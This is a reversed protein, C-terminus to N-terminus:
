IHCDVVTLLTDDPLSDILENFKRNWDDTGVENRSMGFWGMEGRAAWQSDKVLAYTVTSSDRAQQIYQDRPSLYEDVGDWPDGLAKCAAVKASQAHYVNRATDIDGKHAERVSEWSTWLMGGTAQEVKDWREAAQVGAKNRMGEFDIDGKRAIDARGPGDDACSGMLGRRGLEGSAGPKLKLFGSWRGGFEWWDWKKNPNTRKIAKLVNGAESLLIFGYKHEGAKEPEAGFPVAKMGYWGQTWEAFTTVMAAPVDIKEYGPPIFHTRRGSDHVPAKPDPQSFEPRWNGHEDFFEHLTGDPAKLCTETENDFRAKAEVTLDVDQVFQDDTGTCEFEHYPALQQEVNEGIVLVSFHSM